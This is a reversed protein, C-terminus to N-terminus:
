SRDSVIHGLYSVQTKFFECKSPKLKLGHKEIRQFVGQLRKLHEDFTDSFVLVDDLYILCEQLNLDGMCTEMLRQFTAPANTLGFAMRNCEYFGLPGVSFATKHRDEEAIEVQWFGSHLDLKSFYRAGVLTDITDNIRPLSYADKVTKANLQRMDICLRLAGDKKRILVINSSYPSKSERIAGSELMGKLHQRVEEYMSPPIRRYPQKFPIDDVLRIRHQVIDTKGLDTSSTSFIHHWNGLVQKARQLQEPTLSETNIKWGLDTNSNDPDDTASQKEDTPQPNWHDVVEVKNLSCLLSHPPIRVTHASLNCIRVPVRITTGPTSLSIVRPCVMLSASPMNEANETVVTEFDLTKRALGHITMVEKPQITIPFHNTTKVPISGVMNISDVAVKWAEPFTDSEMHSNCLRIVNTGVIVPVSQSYITTPIVLAPVLVPEHSLFPIVISAEIYGMYPLEKGGAGYVSLDFDEIDHLVPRPHLSNYFSESVCTVMSGSDILGTTDIGCINIPGENCHGVLKTYLSGDIIPKSTSDLNSSDINPSCSDVSCTQKVEGIQGM